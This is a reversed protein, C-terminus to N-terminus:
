SILALISNRKWLAWVVVMVVGLVIIAKGHRRDSEGFTYVREGNPLTKQTTAMNWGIFIGVVGGFLAFLYGIWVNATQKAEPQALEELRSKKLLALLRADVDIGRESLVRRALQYDFASWEDPSALIDFLEEDKFGFLYHSTDVFRVEDAAMDHLLENVESFRSPHVKVIYEPALSIMSIPDIRERYVETQYPITHEELLHLLALYPEEHGFNKITLFEEM